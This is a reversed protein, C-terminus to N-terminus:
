LASITPTGWSNTLNTSEPYIIDISRIVNVGFADDFSYGAGPGNTGSASSMTVYFDVNTGTGGNSQTGNINVYISGTDSTYAATTSTVSVLTTNTSATVNWYGKATDNTGLTGGTGTRGGNTRQGFTAVGGMFGALAIIENTRASTSANQTASVNFKLKGGANFFYRAADGSAFACRAGWTGTVTSSTSVSTWATSLGSCTTTSGQTAFLLRNTYATNISSGLTSLYNIKDGASITASIGSGSGSQHTLISNLRSVLTAWQTATVVGGQSVASIATQGYGSDGTGTGWVTNLQNSGNIFNNYDTTDIKGGQSYSM